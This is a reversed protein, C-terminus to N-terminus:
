HDCANAGSQLTGALYAEVLMEPELPPAGVITEINHQACLDRARGGMGGAIVLDVGREALWPPLLGPEHPPAAEDKRGVIKGNEKDAEILAFSQCHGFHSFLKGDAVPIAIIM